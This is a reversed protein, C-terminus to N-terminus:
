RRNTALMITALEVRSRLGTRHFLRTLRSAVSSESVSLARAIQRNTLGEAVLTALLTENEETATRRGPVPLAAERLATRTRYRWVLAGLHGFLDYAERLLAEGDPGHPGDPHAYPDTTTAVALLTRATEFPQDSARALQVAERACALQDPLEAALEPHHRVARLCARLYLLRTSDSPMATTIRELESMSEGAREPRGRDSELAALAAWLPETGLVCGRERADDLGRRVSQEALDPEGIFSAIAAEEADLLYSVSVPQARAIDLVTRARSPRGLALLMTSARSHALVSVPPRATACSSVMLSRATALGEEWSGTLYQRLLVSEAPLQSAAIGRAHLLENAQRLSGMSLLYDCQQATLEFAMHPPLSPDAATRLATHLGAADGGMMMAADKYMKGFYRTVPDPRTDLGTAAILELAQSWCGLLCLALVGAIASAGDADDPRPRHQAGLAGIDGAAALAMLHVVTIEQRAAPDLEGSHTRLVTGAAEAAVRADRARYATAAHRALLSARLTPDDTLDAAARLWNAAARTHTDSLQAAAGLLEGLARRREILAGADVIRDALYARRAAGDGREQETTAPRDDDPEWLASVAAASVARREYPGLRARLAVAILPIRFTWNGPREHGDSDPCVVLGATVLRSLASAVTDAPLGTVAALISPTRRGMPELVSLAKAVRWVTDGLDRLARVFRDDDQLVPSPAGPVLHAHGILTGIAAEGAPGLAASIAGPNGGSLRYLEAVLDHDPVARLRDTVLDAVDEKTLPPVSVTDVALAGPLLWVAGEGAEHAAPEGSSVGGIPSVGLVLRVASLALTPAIVRVLRLTEPDAFQADDVLVVARTHTRLARNLQISVAEAPDRPGTHSRAAPRLTSTKAVPGTPSTATRAAPTLATVLRHALLYAAQHDRPLCMVEHVPMGTARVREALTGLVASRGVGIEGRVLWVAPGSAATACDILRQVVKDRGILKPQFQPSAGENM